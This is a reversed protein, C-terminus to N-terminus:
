YPKAGKRVRIRRGRAQRDSRDVAKRKNPRDDRLTRFSCEYTDRREGRLELRNNVKPAYPIRPVTIAGYYWFLATKLCVAYGSLFGRCM